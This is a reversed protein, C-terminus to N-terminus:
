SVCLFCKPPIFMPSKFLIIEQIHKFKCSPTLKLTSTKGLHYLLYLFWLMETSYKGINARDKASCECQCAWKKGVGSTTVKDGM